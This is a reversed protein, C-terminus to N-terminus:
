VWDITDLISGLLHIKGNEHCAWGGRDDDTYVLMDGGPSFGYVTIRSPDIDVGFYENPFTTLPEHGRIGELGGATGFMMWHVSDVLRYYDALTQPLLESRPAKMPPAIEGSRIGEPFFYFGAATTGFVSQHLYLVWLESDAMARFWTEMNPTPAREAVSRVAAVPDAWWVRIEETLLKQHSEPVEGLNDGKFLLVQTGGGGFEEESVEM